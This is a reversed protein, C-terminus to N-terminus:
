KVEEIIWSEAEEVTHMPVLLEVRNSDRFCSYGVLTENFEWVGYSQPVPSCEDRHFIQYRKGSELKM